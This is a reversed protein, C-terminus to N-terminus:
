KKLDESHEIKTIYESYKAIFERTVETRHEQGYAQRAEIPRGGEDLINVL